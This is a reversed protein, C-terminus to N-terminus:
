LDVWGVLETTEPATSEEPEEPRTTGEPLERPLGRAEETKAAAPHEVSAHGNGRVSTDRKRTERRPAHVVMGRRGGRPTSEGDVVSGPYIAEYHELVASLVDATRIGAVQSRLIHDRTAQRDTRRELWAALRDVAASTREDARSLTLDEGEPLARWVDLAYDVVAIAAQMAEAPVEPAADMALALVLAVRLVQRPGKGAAARVGPSADAAETQWRDQADRWARRAATTLDLRLRRRPQLLDELRRTWADPVAVPGDVRDPMTGGYLHPLWRARLGSEVGGLLRHDETQLTGVVSVAPESAVISTDGGVRDYTLPASADWMSLYHGLDRQAAAGASYRGLGGLWSRLEDVVLVQPGAEALRRVLAEVTADSVRRTTRWPRPGRDKAPQKRWEDVAREDDARLASEARWVPEWGYRTAPSKATSAPGLIPLWLAPAEVWSEGAVVRCDLAAYALAGLGAAGVYERPLGAFEGALILSRLPEPVADVPYAPVAALHPECAREPDDALLREPHAEGAARLRELIVPRAVHRAAASATQWDAVIAAVAEHQPRVACGARTM